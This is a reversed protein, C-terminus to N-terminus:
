SPDVVCAKRTKFVSATRIEQLVPAKCDRVLDPLSIVLKRVLVPILHSSFFNGVIKSFPKTDVSVEPEFKSKVTKIRDLAGLLTTLVNSM